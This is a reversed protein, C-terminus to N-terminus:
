KHRPEWSLGLFFVVIGLACVVYKLGRIREYPVFGLGHLFLAMGFCSIGISMGLSIATHEDLPRHFLYDVRDPRTIRYIGYGILAIPM